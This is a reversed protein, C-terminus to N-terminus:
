EVSELWRPNILEVEGRDLEVSYFTLPDGELPIGTSYQVTGEKGQFRKDPQLASAGGNERVRVRQGPEFDPM